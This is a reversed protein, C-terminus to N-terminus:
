LSFLEREKRVPRFQQMMKFNFYNYLLLLYASSEGERVHENLAQQSIKKKGLKIKSNLYKM